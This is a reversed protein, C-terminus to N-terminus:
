IGRSTEIAYVRGTEGVRRAFKVTFFGGGSGVDAIALGERLGLRDIIEGAASRPAAAERNLIKLFISNLM